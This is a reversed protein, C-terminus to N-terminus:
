EYAQNKPDACSKPLAALMERVEKQGQKTALGEDYEKATKQAAAEPDDPAMIMLQTFECEISNTVEPYVHRGNQDVFHCSFNIRTVDDSGYVLGMPAQEPERPAAGAVQAVLLVLWAGRMM